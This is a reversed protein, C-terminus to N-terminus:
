WQLQPQLQIKETIILVLVTNKLQL